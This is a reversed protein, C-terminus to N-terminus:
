EDNSETIQQTNINKASTYRDIQSRVNMETTGKINIKKWRLKLPTIVPVQKEACILQFGGLPNHKNSFGSVWNPVSSIPIKWPIMPGFNIKHHVKFQLLKLWDTLRFNSIPNAQWLEDGGPLFQRAGWLSMPNFGLICLKGGFDVVRKVESLIQQPEESYDLVLPLIVIDISDNQLPLANPQAVLDVFDGEQWDLRIRHKAKCISLNLEHSLPGIGLLRDGECGSLFVKMASEIENRLILGNPFQQWSRPTKLLSM